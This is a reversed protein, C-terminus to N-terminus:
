RGVRSIAHMLSSGPSPDAPTATILRLGLLALPNVDVRLSVPLDKAMAQWLWWCEDREVALLDNTVEAARREREAHTLASNDDAESAIEADLRAVLADRHLWCTIAAMDCVEAFAVAGPQEVNQVTARIQTMPFEIEHDHEVLRSVNVAGRAALTEIQERMKQRAHSSPYPASQIRHLDAKLERVRHRLTEVRTAIDEGKNLTPKPGNFDELATGGPRGDLLYATVASVTQSAVRWAESRVAYIDDLRRCEAALADLKAKEGRCRPDDDPLEFGGVSAHDQLRKLTQEAQLKATHADHRESFEPMLKHLDDAHQKLMRFRDAAAAPLYAAPDTGIHSPTFSIQTIPLMSAPTAPQFGTNM